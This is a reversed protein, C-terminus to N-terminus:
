AQATVIWTGRTLRLEDGEVRESLAAEIAELVRARTADDAARLLVALPGLRSRTSAVAPIRDATTVVSSNHAAIDIEHFGAASLISRIRDPDALSFLDPRRPDPLPPPWGTASLAAVVPVFTWENELPQQFCSFSLRGGTRLARRVNAFAVGPDAFFMVGFRSYARDFREVGLDHTEIDAQVFEVNDIRHETALERAHNIMDAAIDVGLAAGGPGVLQALDLTTRGSGSGLDIVHQKEELALRDLALRGPEGAITEVEGELELWTPALESWFEAAEVNVIRELSTM